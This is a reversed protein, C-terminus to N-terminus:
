GSTLIKLEGRFIKEIPREIYRYSIIGAVIAATVAMPIFGLWNLGILQSLKYSVTLAFGHVLYLSYSSDGLLRLWSVNPTKEELSLSGVVILAAPIGLSFLREDIFTSLIPMSVFGIPLLFWLGKIKNKLWVLAIIMGFCFEIMILNTYFGIVGQTSLLHGILCAGFIILIAIYVYFKRTLLMCVTFIAYFFMEYNLTWGPILIPWYVNKVPHLWPIFGYSAIAHASFGGSLVVALSTWIWYIPVIRRIRKAAFKLPKVKSNVTTVVMIFGSIIFFLDVGGKLWDPWYGEYGLYSSRSRLYYFVVAMAAAARLYQISYLTKM